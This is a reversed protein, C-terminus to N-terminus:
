PTGKENKANSELFRLPILWVLVVGVVGVLSVTGIVYGSSFLALGSLILGWGVITAAGLCLAPIFAILCLIRAIVPNRTGILQSASKLDEHSAFALSACRRALSSFAVFSFLAVIGSVIGFVIKVALYEFLDDRFFGKKKPALPMPPTIAKAEAEKRLLAEFKDPDFVKLKELAKVADTDQSTAKPQIALWLTAVAVIMVRFQM